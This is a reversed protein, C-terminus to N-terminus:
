KKGNSDSFVKFPQNARLNETGEQRESNRHTTSCFIKKLELKSQIKSFDPRKQETDQMEVFLEILDEIRVLEEEKIIKKYM